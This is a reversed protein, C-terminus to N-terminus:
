QAKLPGVVEVRLRYGDLEKPLKGMTEPRPSDLGVIIVPKGEDDRGIGVSVVGQEAMLQDKYKAKVDHISLSMNSDECSQGALIGVLMVM